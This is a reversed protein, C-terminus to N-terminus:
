ESPFCLISVTNPGAYWSDFSESKSYMSSNNRQYESDTLNSQSSPTIKITLDNGNEYSMFPRADPNLNVSHLHLSDTSKSELGGENSAPVSTQDDEIWNPDLGSFDQSSAQLNFEM